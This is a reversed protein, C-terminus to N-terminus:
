ISLIYKYYKCYNTEVPHDNQSQFSPRMKCSSTIFIYNLVVKTKLIIKSRKLPVSKNGIVM